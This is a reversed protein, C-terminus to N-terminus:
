FDVDNNVFDEPRKRKGKIGLIGIVLSKIAIINQLIIIIVLITLWIIVAIKEDIRALIFIISGFFMYTSSLLSLNSYALLYANDNM